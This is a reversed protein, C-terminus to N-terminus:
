AEEAWDLFLPIPSMIPSVSLLRNAVDNKHNKKEGLDKMNQHRLLASSKPKRSHTGEVLEISVFMTLAVGSLNLRM